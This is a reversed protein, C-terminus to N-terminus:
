DGLFSNVMLLHESICQHIFSHVFSHMFNNKLHTKVNERYICICLIGMSKECVWLCFSDVSAHSSSKALFFDNGNWFKAEHIM